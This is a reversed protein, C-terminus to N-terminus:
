KFFKKRLIYTIIMIILCIFMFLWISEYSWSIKLKELMKKYGAPGFLEYIIGSTGFLLVLSFSLINVVLLVVKLFVRIKVNM